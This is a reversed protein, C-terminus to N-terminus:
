RGRKRDYERYYPLRRVRGIEKRRKTLAAKGGRCLMAEMRLIDQVATECKECRCFLEQEIVRRVEDTM